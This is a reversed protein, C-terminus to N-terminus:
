NDQPGPIQMDFFSIPMKPNRQPEAPLSDVQLTLSWHSLTWDRPLSSRKSFPFAVWELIRAQLIGHVTYDSMVSRSESKHTNSIRFPLFSHNVRTNFQFILYQCSSVIEISLPLHLNSLFIFTLNTHMHRHIHTFLCM